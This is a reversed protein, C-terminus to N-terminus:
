KVSETKNTLKKWLPKDGWYKYSYFSGNDSLLGESLDYLDGNGRCCFKYDPIYKRISEITKIVQEKIYPLEYNRGMNWSHQYDCGIKVIKPAGDFGSEKSYWTCGGHFEISDCWKAKYYSYSVRKSFLIEGDLWFSDAIKKNPVRDLNIFVYHCWNVQENEDIDKSFHKKIEFSIGNYTGTWTEATSKKINFTEM